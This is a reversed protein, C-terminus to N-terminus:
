RDQGLAVVAGHLVDAVGEALEGEDRGLVEAVVQVRVEVFAGDVVQERDGGAEVGHDEALALDEALDALGPLRGVFFAGGAGSQGGEEAVGHDGAFAHPCLRRDAPAGGRQGVGGDVHGGAAQAGELARADQEEAGALHALAHGEGHGADLAGLDEHGVARPVAGDGEGSADATPRDLELPQAVGQGLGVDKECGGACGRGDDVVAIKSGDDIRAAAPRKEDDVDGHGAVDIGRDSFEDADLEEVEVVDAGEDLVTQGTTTALDVTHADDDVFLALVVEVAGRGSLHGGGDSGKPLADLREPHPLELALPPPEFPEVGLLPLRHFRHRTAHHCLEEVVGGHAELVRGARRAALAEGVGEALEEVNLGMSRAAVRALASARSCVSRTAAAKPSGTSATTTCVIPSWRVSTAMQSIPPWPTNTFSTCAATSSPRASKATCEALSRGEVEGSPNTMPAMGSRSSGRSASTPEVSSPRGTPARTPVPDTRRRAWSAHALGSRVKAPRRPLMSVRSALADSNSAMTIAAAARRRSSRVNTMSSTRSGDITRGWTPWPARATSHRVSSASTRVRSAAM